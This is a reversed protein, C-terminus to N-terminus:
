DWSEGYCAGRVSDSNTQYCTGQGDACPFGTNGVERCAAEWEKGMIYNADDSGWCRGSPGDYKVLGSAYGKENYRDCAKSTMRWNYTGVNNCDCQHHKDALVGGVFTAALAASVSFLKSFLM